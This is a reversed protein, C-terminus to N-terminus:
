LAQKFASPILQMEHSALSKGLFEDGGVYETRLRGRIQGQYNSWQINILRRKNEHFINVGRLIGVKTETGSEDLWYVNLEGTVSTMGQKRLDIEFFANKNEDVNISVSDIKVKSVIPKTRVIIPLTYSTLVDIKFDIGQKESVRNNKKSDSQPPLATIKLHSRYEALDMNSKRRLMLKIIQREGPKLTVQRPSYRIFNSAAFSLDSPVIVSYEGREDTTNEQWEIRYSRTTETVNILILDKVRDKGEFALRTPSVLLNANVSQSMCIFMLIIAIVQKM